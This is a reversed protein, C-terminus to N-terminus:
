AKVAQVPIPYQQLVNLFSEDELFRRRIEAYNVAMRTNFLPLSKKSASELHVAMEPVYLIKFGAKLARFCFDVDEFQLGKYDMAMGKLEKLVASKIYCFSTTVHCVYAAHDAQGNDAEGFYRHRIGGGMYVGGAHQITGNPFLLKFGFIDGKGYLETPIRIKPPLFIDDDMLMVDNGPRVKSLGINVAEAWSNGERVWHVDVDKPLFSECIKRHPRDMTPIVIEYKNM